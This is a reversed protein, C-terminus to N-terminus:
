DIIDEEVNEIEIIEIVKLVDVINEVVLGDEFEVKYYQRGNRTRSRSVVSCTLGNKDAYLGGIYQLRQRLEFKYDEKVPKSTEAYKNRKTKTKSTKNLPSKDAL